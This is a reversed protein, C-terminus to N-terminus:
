GLIPLRRKSYEERHVQRMRHLIFDYIKKHNQEDSLAPDVMACVDIPELIRFTM